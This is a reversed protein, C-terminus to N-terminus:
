IDYKGNKIDEALSDITASKNFWYQAQQNDKSPFRTLLDHYQKDYQSSAILLCNIVLDIEDHTLKITRVMM